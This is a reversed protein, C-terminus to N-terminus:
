GPEEILKRIREIWEQSLEPNASRKSTIMASEIRVGMVKLETKNGAAARVSVHVEDATAKDAKLRFQFDWGNSEREAECMGDSALAPLRTMLTRSVEGIPRDLVVGHPEAAFATLTVLLLGPILYNARM